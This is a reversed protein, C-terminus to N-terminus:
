SIKIWDTFVRSPVSYCVSVSPCVSRCVCRCVARCVSLVARCVSLCCLLLISLCWPLCWVGCVFLFYFTPFGFCKIFMKWGINKEGNMGDCTSRLWLRCLWTWWRRFAFLWSGTDRHVEQYCTQLIALQTCASISGLACMSGATDKRYLTEFFTTSHHSLTQSFTHIDLFM